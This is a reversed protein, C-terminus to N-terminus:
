TGLAVAGVEPRPQEGNAGGVLTDAAQRKTSLLRRGRISDLVIIGNLQIIIGRTIIHEGRAAKM